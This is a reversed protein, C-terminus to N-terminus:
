QSLSWSMPAKAVPANANDVLVMQDNASVM